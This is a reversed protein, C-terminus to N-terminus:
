FESVILMGRQFLGKIRAYPIKLSILTNIFRLSDVPPLLSGFVKVFFRWFFIWESDKLWLLFPKCLFIFDKKRVDNCILRRFVWELSAAGDCLLAFNIMEIAQLRIQDEFIIRDWSDFSMHLRISWWLRSKWCEVQIEFILRLLLCDLRLWFDFQCFLFRKWIQFYQFHSWLPRIWSKRNEACVNYTCSIIGM